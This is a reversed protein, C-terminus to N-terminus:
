DSETGDFLHPHLSHLLRLRALLTKVETQEEPTRQKVTGCDLAKLRKFLRDIEKSKSM